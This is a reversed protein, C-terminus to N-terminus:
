LESFHEDSFFLDGTLKGSDDKLEGTHAGVVAARWRGRDAAVEGGHRQWGITGRLGGKRVV